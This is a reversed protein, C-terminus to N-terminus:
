SRQEGCLVASCCKRSEVERKRWLFLFVRLFTEKEHTYITTTLGALAQM